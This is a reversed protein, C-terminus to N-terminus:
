YIQVVFSWGFARGSFFGKFHTGLVLELSLFVKNVILDSHYADGDGSENAVMHLM